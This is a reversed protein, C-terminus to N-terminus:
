RYILTFHFILHNQLNEVAPWKKITQKSALNHIKHHIGCCFVNQYIKLLNYLEVILFFGKINRFHNSISFTFKAVNVRLFEKAYFYM